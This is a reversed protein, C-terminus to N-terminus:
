AAGKRKPGILGNALPHSRAYEAILAREPKTLLRTPQNTKDSVTDRPVSKKNRPKLKRAKKGVKSKVVNNM